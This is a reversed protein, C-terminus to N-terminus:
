AVVGYYFYKREIDEGIASFIRLLDNLYSHLGRRFIEDVRDYRLSELM